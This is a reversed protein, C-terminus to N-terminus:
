LVNYYVFHLNCLLLSLCMADLSVNSHVNFLLKYCILVCISHHLHIIQLFTTKCIAQLTPKGKAAPAEPESPTVFPMM